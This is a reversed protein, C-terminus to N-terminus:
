TGRHSRPPHIHPPWTAPQPTNKPWAPLKAFTGDPNTPPGPPPNLTSQFPQSTALGNTLTDYLALIRDKTRYHGHADEDKRKVIPFTDMIYAVADRPTPLAQLLEPSASRKWEDATGLYLHFFAADLECRIEFRREPDYHFVAGDGEPWLDKSFPSMDDATASLELLASRMTPVLPHRGTAADVSRLHPACIQNLYGFTFNTGGLKQRVIWDFPFTSCVCAFDAAMLPDPTRVFPQSHGVAARPFVGFVATRENTANTINRWGIM